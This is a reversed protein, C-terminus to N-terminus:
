RIVAIKGMKREGGAEMVYLYIGSAVRQGADNTGLWRWQGTVGTPVIAGGLSAVWEGALTYLNLRDLGAPLFDFIVGTTYDGDDSSGSNPRFPNPYVAALSFLQGPTESEYFVGFVGFRTVSGSVLNTGIDVHSDQVRHWTQTEPSFRYLALRTEHRSDKVLGSGALEGDTYHVTVTIPADWEADVPGFQRAVGLYRNDNDTPEPVTQPEIISFTTPRSVTGPPIEISSFGLDSLRWVGTTRKALAKPSAPPAFKGTTQLYLVKQKQSFTGVTAAQFYVFRQGNNSMSPFANNASSQGILTSDSGTGDSSRLKVYFNTAAVSASPSTSFTSLSFTNSQDQSYSVQTGDTSWAPTWSPKTNAAASIKTMDSLSEVKNSGVAVAYNFTQRSYSADNLTKQIISDVNAIVYIDSKTASVSDKYVVALKRRDPSWKPEYLGDTITGSVPLNTIQILRKYTSGNGDSTSRPEFVWINGGISAVLRHVGTPFQAVEFAYTTLAWDPDLWGGFQQTTDNSAGSPSIKKLTGGGKPVQYLQLTTVTDAPPFVLRQYGTFVLSDGDPTWTNSSYAIPDGNEKTSGSIATTVQTKNTGDRNMTFLNWNNTGAGTADEPSESLYAVKDDAPSWVPYLSLTPKTQLTTLSNITYGNSVVDTPEVSTRVQLTVAGPAPNIIGSAATFILAIAGNNGISVSAPVTVTIQRNVSDPVVTSATTGNVTVTSATIASPVTTGVPFTVRVTSTGAVLAGQAGTSVDIRYQANAGFTDPTPTVTAATVTTTAPSITYLKSPTNTAEVSTRVQLRYTGSLSPNRILTSASFNLRVTDLAAITPTGTPVTITVTRLAANCVPAVTVTTSNVTIFSAIMSTPVTTNSPFTVTITSSGATLGGQAGLKFKVNYAGTTNVTQPSPGGNPSAASLAPGVFASDVTSTASSIEYANSTVDTQEVSTRVTLTKSGATPNTLVNSTAGITLLVATNNGISVGSPVTVTVTRAGANTTVGASAVGNITVNSATISAPVTTGTPFTATIDSVGPQLAGFGGTNFSLAYQATVSQQGPNPTVTAPTTTTSAVSIAYSNSTQASTETSTKATLTYSTATTPNFLGAGVSLSVVVTSGNNITVMTPVTVTVEQGIASAVSAAVGNILVTSPTISAPVTTGSPFTLTITSVGGLLRGSAGVSFTVTYAANTQVFAPSVSVTPATITTAAANIAYSSSTVNTAEVSTRVQVTFSSASPNTLAAASLFVVSVAGNAAVSVPTTLLVTRLSPNTTVAASVPTGNVTINSATISAPIVTNDPFTVTITSSGATLAGSSGVNYALTYQATANATAPSPTVTAATVTTTATAITYGNSTIDPTEVTTRVTLIYSAASSPNTIIGSPIFVAVAGSNAVTVSAPVTLTVTRTAGDSVAVASVGNVTAGSITQSAVSSTANLTLTITSSGATLAGSSGVNFQVTYSATVSVTAPNPTVTAATVTTAAAGITYVNSVVAIPEASTAVSLTYQGPISPNQVLAQDSIVVTVSDSNGITAATPVTITIQQGSVVVGAVASGNLTIKSSAISTPLVTGSPLTLTVTSTGGQLAGTSGVRFGLVYQATSNITNPTPTVNAATVTTSPALITYAQSSVKTQEVSTNVQLTYSGGTSPNQISASTSVVVSVSGSNAITVPTTLRLTRGTPSAVPTVSVPTGNVTITSAAVSFPVTTNNPFTLTITGSAATLAGGAGVNFAVTYQATADVTNPSLTIEAPSVTTTAAGLAYSQSTVPLTEVSTYATITYSGASAPNTIVATTSGIELTVAGSNQITVGPPVTITVTQGSKNVSQPQVGNVRVNSALITGLTTSDNFVVTITSVGSQLAGQAGVNFAVAYTALQSITGISPTVSASSISTTAASVGFSPSTQLTPQVNTAVKLTYSGVTSPNTLGAANVFVLSVTGNGAVAVPTTVTVQKSVVDTFPADTAATNNVRVDGASMLSPVGTLDDFDITIQDGISLPSSAGLKFDIVYGTNANIASPNPSVSTIALTSNTTITYSPSPGNTTQASTKVQVTYNGATPNVIGAAVALIVTVTGSSAVSVPTTITVTRSAPVTSVSSATVDNVTVTSSLISSPVTTGAPFTITITNNGVLLGGAAGATFGITYAATESARTPSPTVSNVTVATASAAITYQPSIIDTSQDSTRLSMTYTTKPVSPNVVGAGSLLQIQHSRNSRLQANTVLDIQQSSPTTTVSQAAAAAGGNPTIQVNATSISAPITTNYPFSLFIHDGVEVNNTPTFTLTYVSVTNVTTTGPTITDFTASTGGTGIEYNTSSVQPAEVATNVQLTLTVNQNPNKIVNSTSGIVLTVAGDNGISVGTPVTVTVLRSTVNTTVNASATGNVTVNSATISAPVTTGTPFVISITSTGGLLRGQGGVNFAITYQSFVNKASNSLTVTATSVTTTAALTLYANSTVTDEKSTAMNLTFNSVQIPNTVGAQAKLIVAMNAGAPVNQGPTVIIKRTVPDTVVSTAASAYTGNDVLANATSISTPVITNEPFVLVIADVGGTLGGSVGLQASITYESPTNVSTPNIDVSAASLSAGDFLTYANSTVPTTEASTAVTLTYTAATSPNVLGSSATFVLEVIDLSALNVPAEVQITRTGPTGIAVAPTGNVTMGYIQGNPVTTNDPFVLTFTGVAATLGGSGGLKFQVTYGSTLGAISTTPTVTASTLVATSTITFPSSTVVTPEQSTSVDLTYSGPTIPNTVGPPDRFVVTVAGATINQNLNITLTQGSTTLGRANSGNIQVNGKKIANPDAGAPFTVIINDTNKVLNVTTTFQVTYQSASGSLPNAVIVTPTSIIANSAEPAFLAFLAILFVFPFQIMRRQVSSFTNPRNKIPSHDPLPMM